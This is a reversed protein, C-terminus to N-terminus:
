GASPPLLPLPTLSASRKSQAIVRELLEPPLNRMSAAGRAMQRESWIFFGDANVEKVAAVAAEFSKPHLGEIVGRAAGTALAVLGIEDDLLPFAQQYQRLKFQKITMEATHGDEFTVNLVRQGFLTDNIM